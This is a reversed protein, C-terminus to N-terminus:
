SLLMPRTLASEANGQLILSLHKESLFGFMLQIILGYGQKQDSQERDGARAPRMDECDFYMRAAVQRLTDQTKNCQEGQKHLSRKRIVHRYM